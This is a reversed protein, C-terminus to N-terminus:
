ATGELVIKLFATRPPGRRVAKRGKAIAEHELGLPVNEQVFLQFIGHLMTYDNHAM